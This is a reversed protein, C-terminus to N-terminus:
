SSHPIYPTKIISFAKILDINFSIMITIVHINNNKSIKKRNLRGNLANRNPAPIISNMM